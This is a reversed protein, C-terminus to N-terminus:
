LAISSAPSISQTVYVDANDPDDQHTIADIKFM